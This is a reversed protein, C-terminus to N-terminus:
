DSVKLSPAQLGLASVPPGLSGKLLSANLNISSFSASGSSNLIDMIPVVARAKLNELERWFSFAKLGEVQLDRSEATSLM